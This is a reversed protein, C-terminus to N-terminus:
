QIGDDHNSDVAYCNKIINKEVINNSGVLRIGDGSFNTISNGSSLIYDGRMSVGFHVNLFNNDIINISDGKIVIGDSAKIIWNTTDTWATTTSYINCNEIKINSVPGQWGHSELFVLKNNL